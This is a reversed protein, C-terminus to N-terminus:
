HVQDCVSWRGVGQHRPEEDANGGVVLAVGQVRDDGSVAGGRFHCRLCGVSQHCGGGAGQGSKGVMGRRQGMQPGTVWLDWNEQGLVTERKKQYHCGSKGHPFNMKDGM